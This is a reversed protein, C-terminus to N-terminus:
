EDNRLDNRPWDKGLQTRRFTARGCGCKPSSDHMAELFANHTRRRLAEAMEEATMTGGLPKNDIIRLGVLHVMESHWFLGDCTNCRWLTESPEFASARATVGVPTAGETVSDFDDDDIM